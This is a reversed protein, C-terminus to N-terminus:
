LLHLLNQQMSEQMATTGKNTFVLRTGFKDQLEIHTYHRTYSKTMKTFNCLM